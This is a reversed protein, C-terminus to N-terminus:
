LSDFLDKAQPDNPNLRLVAEFEKRALDPLNKELYTLALNFHADAFDPDLEVAKQFHGAASEILGMFGYAVGLNNHAEAYGPMLRVAEKYSAIARDMIGKNRYENGLNNYGKANGPSKRVVDEWLSIKSEWVNNRAHAAYSLVFLILVFSSVAFVTAKKNELRKVLLFVGATVALFVGVSPLYARHEFILNATPVVSSTVSVTIFFWLLGFPILRLAGDSKRTRHYFWLAFSLLSLLFLFSFLVQPALFSGYPFYGYDLNQNVPMFLLRIYTVIVTFQTVLYQWRPYESTPTRFAQGLDGTESLLIYPIILMTLIFPILRILRRSAPGRFFFLEYLSIVVPLTFTIEKSLMGLAASVLALAYLSYKTAKGSSLRSGAYATLSGLYFFTALLTFRQCIYNVAQTQLPHCVFVLASVLALTGATDRLSSREMRPTRFTLLVLLYLLLANSIHITINVIHFGRVDLANARYNLAFTFFSVIRRKFVEGTLPSRLIRDTKDLYSTSTFHRLDTILPNNQIFSEDDFVFPSNLTNSYIILGSLVILLLSWKKAM